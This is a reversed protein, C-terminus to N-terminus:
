TCEIVVWRTAGVGPIVSQVTNDYVVRYRSPAYEEIEYLLYSYGEGMNVLFADNNYRGRFADLDALSSVSMQGRIHDEPSFESMFPDIRNDIHVKVGHFVLWSGTDFSNFVKEYGENKIFVVAQPDYAAMKEIDSMTGTPLYRGTYFVGLGILMVICAGGLLTYFSDSLKLSVKKKLKFVVDYAWKIIEEFLEPAFMLFAISLYLVFRKYVCTMIFFMCFLALETIYRKEFARVKGGCMFGVFVLLILLAQLITFNMPTWEDVLAWIDTASSQTLGFTLIRYGAPNLLSLLFGAPIGCLLIPVEKYNRYLLEIVILVVYVSLFLPLIGGQFWALFLCSVSFLGAKFLPKRRNLFSVILLPVALSSTLSPRVNYDPYGQLMPTLGIVLACILPHAKDKMYRVAIIGTSYIFFAGVAIVGWLKFFKYVIGLLLYWGSEHATFVLDPHWSYIEETILKGAALDDLGLKIQMCTDGVMGIMSNIGAFPSFMFLMLAFLFFSSAAEKTKKKHKLENVENM